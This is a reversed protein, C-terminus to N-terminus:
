SLTEVFSPPRRHSTAQEYGYALAIMRGDSWRAGFFSLGVPLHQVFGCPVTVHPYGAVAAPTSSGGIFHDGVLLDITWAPSATPAMIAEVGQAALAK